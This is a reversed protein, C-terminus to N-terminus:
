KKMRKEQARCWNEVFKVPDRYRKKPIKNKPVDYMLHVVPCTKEDLTCERGGLDSRRYRCAQTWPKGPERIDNVFRCFSM